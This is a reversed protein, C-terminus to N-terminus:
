SGSATDGRRRTGIEAADAVLERVKQIDLPKAARVDVVDSLWVEDLLEGGWGSMIGIVVDPDAQRVARAVEGGSLGPLTWDILVLDCSGPRFWGLAEQGDVALTVEHGDSTLIEQLLERVQSEDDVLLIRQPAPLPRDSPVDPVVTGEKASGAAVDLRTAEPLHITFTSGVGSESTVEIRGGLETVIRQCTALGIGRGGAKGTTFRPEFLRALTAADMGCGRDQVSLQLEGSKSVARLQLPGGQPMAELANVLLNTVLERLVVPHAWVALDPPLETEIHYRVGRKQAGTEWRHRTMELCFEVVDALRTVPVPETSGATDTELIQSVLAAADRAAAVILELHRRVSAPQEQELLLQARGLVTGLLENVDHAVGLALWQRGDAQEQSESRQRADNM